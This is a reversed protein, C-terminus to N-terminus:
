KIHRIYLLHVKRSFSEGCLRWLMYKIFFISFSHSCKLLSLKKLDREIHYNELAQRLVKRWNGYNSSLGDSYFISSVCPIYVYDCTNKYEFIFKTDSQIKYSEDFKYKKMVDEPFWVSQHVPNFRKLWWDFDRNTKVSSIDPYNVVERGPFVVESASFIMPHSKFNKAAAILDHNIVFEDGSNIFVCYDYEIKKLKVYEICINMANFISIDKEEVFVIPLHSFESVIELTKPNNAGDKILISSYLDTNETGFSKLTRILGESDNQTITIILLKM